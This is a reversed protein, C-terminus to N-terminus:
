KEYSNIKKNVMLIAANAGDTILIDLYEKVATIFNEFFALDTQWINKNSLIKKVITIIDGEKWAAAYFEANNDNILYHINNIDGYYNGDAGIVGKMFLIHAAMGLAMYDPAEKYHNLYAVIVAVNRASMKSSYQMTISLWKHAIFNNSFRDLVKGAFTKTEENNIEPSTVVPIIENLMLHKIFSYFPQNQMAEKVTTFGALIALGCSFTHPGNLLRLKLERYKDINPALIVTPNADAFSLIKKVKVNDTEIAWLNYPECMIMLADTYGIVSTTEKQLDVELKGPVIRDVLSSCFYNAESIWKIFAEDLKNQAALALIIKLLVKGNNTILETPIIVFGKDTDGNFFTYRRYLFALLKGPFSQPPNKFIDEELLILGVETTNSIIIQMAPNTACLLIAEWDTPANLVRSISSVVKNEAIIKGEEVGRICLTFMNDQADFDQTTGTTTSKVVVIRGNFVKNINAQNIIFDTLARLLVGTGFQLIKEPLEFLNNAPLEVTTNLSIEPLNSKNLLMKCFEKVPIHITIKFV